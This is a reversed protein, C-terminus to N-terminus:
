LNWTEQTWLTKKHNPLHLVTTYSPSPFSNVYTDLVTLSSKGLNVVWVALAMNVDNLWVVTINTLQISIWTFGKTQGAERIAFLLSCPVQLGVTSVRSVNSVSESSSEVM